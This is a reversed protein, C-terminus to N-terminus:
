FFAIFEESFVVPCGVREKNVRYFMGIWSPQRFNLLFQMLINSFLFSKPKKDNEKDFQSMKVLFVAIFRESFGVPSCMREKQRRKEVNWEVFDTTLKSFIAYLRQFHSFKSVKTM